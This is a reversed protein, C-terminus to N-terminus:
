LALFHNMLSFAKKHLEKYYEDKGVVEEKELGVESLDDKYERTWRIVDEKRVEVHFQVGIIKDKIFGQNKFLETEGLPEAGEPIDFTDGHWQFVLFEKEGFIGDQYIKIKHWGIEKKEGKYVRAGLLRALLQCGLCIGLIPVGKEVCEELFRRERKLFPYLDEEYAGMPGGLVVVHTYKISPRPLGKFVDWYTFFVRKKRLYEEWVGLGEFGINRIALIM